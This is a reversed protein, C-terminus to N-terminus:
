TSIQRAMWRILCCYINVRQFIRQFRILINWKKQLWPASMAATNLSKSLPTTRSPTWNRLRKARYMQTVPRDWFTLCGLAGFIEIRDTAGFAFMGGIDSINSINESRNLAIRQVGATWESKPLTDALPVFWLGTDGVTTSSGPRTDQAMAPVAMASCLLLGIALSRLIRM